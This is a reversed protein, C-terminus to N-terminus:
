AEPGAITAALVIHQRSLAIFERHTPDGGDLPAIEVDTLAIFDRDHSNLFDTMRSRYGDRPLKLNGTIRYRTTELVVHEDRQDM